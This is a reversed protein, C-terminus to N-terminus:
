SDAGADSGTDSGAPEDAPADSSPEPDIVREVNAKRKAVVAIASYVVKNDGLTIAIKEGTSYNTITRAAWDLDPFEKQARSRYSHVAHVFKKYSDENEVAIALDGDFTVFGHVAMTEARMASSAILAFYEQLVKQMPKRAGRSGRHGNSLLVFNDVLKIEM